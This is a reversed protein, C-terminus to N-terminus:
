PSLEWATSGKQSRAEFAGVIPSYRGAWWEAVRNEYWPSAPNESQGGPLSGYAAGGLDVVMRWSPGHTSPSGEAADPTFRDGRDARPGYSLGPVDILSQLQRTHIAGWTWKTPDPGLRRTLVDLADAFARVMVDPAQRVAGDPLSFAPNQEDGLTWAELDMGLVGDFATRDLGVHRADWWPQFTDALYSNWFTWWIAAGASGADMRGNWAALLSRARQQQLTLQTGQLSGLLRPVIEGALFDHTDNQIAEMAAPTFPGAGALLSHIEDARYGPDFDMTTGIYYPYDPGVPRQNATWLVHGPPDYVQPVAQFPITGTVDYQGTGAMPLWPEGQAVLPYYGASIMGVNGHVDAYAFNQSPAHWASLAARFQDWDSAQAVGILAGLDDSPLNGAWWVALTQGEQTMVPGHVTLRVTLRRPAGGRVPIEYVVKKFPTWAGDWLYRGPHARDTKEQYYFTAQNQTDTLGWAISRNRGILVVPTGPIGVGEAHYGPADLSLQFWISPLTLHLHPDNALLAGGSVSRSADVVWNNSAGGASILGPPLARTAALLASAAAAERPGVEAVGGAPAIPDPPAAPAYPGPDYPSQPNPPVVPFWSMARDKGLAKVLLAYDLPGTTYDLDQTMDGKVLLSDVPTWPAPRYGLVKFIAPLRGTREDESIRDNVGQAYATLADHGAEGPSMQSWELRATRLLGLQLEFTDSALAAPGVVQALLGAGQRRLLDMQLLRFRAHLYGTALFLDHEDGAVVHATGDRQFVVEVRHHLGPARLDERPGPLAADAAMTWAGTGPNFAAGLPPLPGAGLFSAGLVLASALLALGLNALSPVRSRRM